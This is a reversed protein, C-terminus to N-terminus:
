KNTISRSGNSSRERELHLAHNAMAVDYENNDEWMHVEELLFAYDEDSVQWVGRELARERSEVSM